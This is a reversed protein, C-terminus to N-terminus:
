SEKLFEDAERNDEVRIWGDQKNADPQAELRTIKGGGKLFQEVAEAIYQSNPDFSLHRRRRQTTRISKPEMPKFDSRPINPRQNFLRQGALSFHVWITFPMLIIILKM